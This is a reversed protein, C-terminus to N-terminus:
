VTVEVNDIVKRAMGMVWGTMNLIVGMWNELGDDWRNPGEDDGSYGVDKLYDRWCGRGIVQSVMVMDWGGINHMVRIENGFGADWLKRGVADVSKLYVTGM